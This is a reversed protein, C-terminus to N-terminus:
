AEKQLAWVMGAIVRVVEDDILSLPPASPASEKLPM